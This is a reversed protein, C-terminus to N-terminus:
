EDTYKYLISMRYPFIFIGIDYLAMNIHVFNQLEPYKLLTINFVKFANNSIQLM